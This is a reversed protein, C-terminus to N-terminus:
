WTTRRALRTIGGPNGSSHNTPPKTAKTTPISPYANKNRLGNRRTGRPLTQCKREVRGGEAARSRRGHMLGSSAGYIFISANSTTNAVTLQLREDFGTSEPAYLNATTCEGLATAATHRSLQAHIETCAPQLAVGQSIPRLQFPMEAPSRVFPSRTIAAVSPEPRNMYRQLRDVQRSDALVQDDLTFDAFSLSPSVTSTSEPARM